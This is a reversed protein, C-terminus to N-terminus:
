LHSDLQEEYISRPSIHFPVWGSCQRKNLFHPLLFKVLKTAQSSCSERMTQRPKQHFSYPAVPFSLRKYSPFTIVSLGSISHTELSFQWTARLCFFCVFMVIQRFLVVAFCHSWVFRNTSSVLSSNDYVHHAQSWSLVRSPFHPTFAFCPEVVLVVWCLILRCHPLPHARPRSYFASSPLLLTNTFVTRVRPM